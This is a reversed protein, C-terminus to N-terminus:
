RIKWLLPQHPAHGFDRLYMKSARRKIACLFSMKRQVIDRLDDAFYIRLFRVIDGRTFSLNLTSFYLAGLDKIQWRLPVCVRCQARHLDMLYVKPSENMILSADDLMFHCLYFDRHNIGAEHISRAIIAVAKILRQKQRFSPQQQEFYHDLQIVDTLERTVIFSQRKAPNQGREGYAVPILSAINLAQLKNLAIWENKAGLVPLRCQLINKLIERWGVGRHWKRYYGRGEIEFRLTQRDIMDRAVTGTLSEVQSFVSDPQWYGVLEDRLMLTQHVEKQIFYDAGKNAFVSECVSVAMEARAYVNETKSFYEGRERWISKDVALIDLIKQATAQVEYPAAIVEGMQQEVVYHAYGCVDTTVVPTGALMAELIVNGALERYALHLLVDSAHLIDAVDTRGGVFFVKDAIDLKEAQTRYVDPKDAGVVLLVLIEQTMKQLMAFADISRDLGKTKFGSGLCLLIRANDGVGLERHIRTQAGLPNSCYVQAPVIGPPLSHVRAPATGYYRGFIKQERENLSLIHTKSKDGFVASEYELYLRSRPALRYWFSREEYAKQAFCSDGAFYVDLGPIKNFGILLDFKQADYVQRLGHVFSKVGATNFTMSASAIVVDVGDPKDGQWEGCFITISHGRKVAEQAIALMDRQLGGYPFYRFIAFALRM